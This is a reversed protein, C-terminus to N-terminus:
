AAIRWGPFLPQAGPEGPAAYVTWKGACDPARWRLSFNAPDVHLHREGFWHLNTKQIVATHVPEGALERNGFYTLTLGSRGNEGTTLWTPDITPPVRHIPCGLAYELQIHAGARNQLGELPSIAYHVNVSSSGGGMIQAWRANEGIVAIRQPQDPNLPLLEGENKLLVIAEAAAQRALQRTAPRDNSQEPQLIPQDFAGVRFLARLLRRVKDDVLTEDLEGSEVARRVQDGLYRAPGPMELDLGGAAVNDTYSGYWDSIVLGDFDWEGKLIDRLLRSNESAWVGNIRNYSSMITWPHANELAIRFPELYIERLPRETVESSMSHREFESDNCVFHKICAGVGQSQLGNIYGSALTGSLFPDEAYCEFNRGAIPSRHINVTPALLVHAGKDKVEAALAQGVQEVLAPNWTAGLAIGVPFSASTPGTNDDIGRAGNPGDSVKMAPIGLREIAVTHWVDAGALLAVKEPLTLQSLLSNIKEEM